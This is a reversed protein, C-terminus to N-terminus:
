SLDTSPRSRSTLPLIAQTLHSASFQLLSNSVFGIKEMNLIIWRNGEKVEIVEGNPSQLSSYKAM